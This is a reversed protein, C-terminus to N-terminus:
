RADSSNRPSHVGFRAAPDDPARRERAVDWRVVKSLGVIGAYYAQPYKDALVDLVKKGHARWRVELDALFAASLSKV